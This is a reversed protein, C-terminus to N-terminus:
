RSSPRTSSCARHSSRTRTAQRRARAAGCRVWAGWADPRAVCLQLRPSAPHRAARARASAYDSDMFLYSGPQLENHTAAALDHAYTGTGGGTVVQVEIGASALRAITRRAADAPGAEVRARREAASRVHQIAGQYVHLGGFDLAPASGIAKALELSADSAPPVGCRSQGCDIEVLARIRAGADRAADNLAAVHSPHDVLAGLRADPYDAALLALRQAAAPPLENTLLVDRCGGNRVLAETEAITQTCFGAIESGALSQQYAALGSCKHAKAHPRLAVGTGRLKARMAADNAEFAPLSVLLCPTLVDALRAGVAAPSRRGLASAHM